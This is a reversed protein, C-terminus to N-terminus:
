GLLHLSRAEQSLQLLFFRKQEEFSKITAARWSMTWASCCGLGLDGNAGHVSEWDWARRIITSNNAVLVTGASDGAGGRLTAGGVGAGRLTGVAVGSVLGGLGGACM